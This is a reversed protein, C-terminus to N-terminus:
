RLDVELTGRVGGEVVVDNTDLFYRLVRGEVVDQGETSRAPSGRLVAVGAAEDLELEDAESVRGGQEVRVGGTLVSRETELDYRLTEATAVLAEADGDPARELAVPGDMVAVDAGQDLFLRSGAVETRGQSLLVRPDEAPRFEELCPPREAFVAEGDRWEVTDQEGAPGEDDPREQPRRSLVWTARVTTEEDLRTVVGDGTPGYFYSVDVGEECRGLTPFSRAGESRPSRNEIVITGSEREVTLRPFGQAPAVAAATLLLTAGAALWGRGSM